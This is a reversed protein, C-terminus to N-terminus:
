MDDKLALSLQGILRSTHHRCIKRVLMVSTDNIPPIYIFIHPTEPMPKNIKSPEPEKGLDKGPYKHRSVTTQWERTVVTHPQRVSRSPILSFTKGNGTCAPSGEVTVCACRQGDGWQGADSAALDLSGAACPLSEGAGSSGAGTLRIGHGPRARLGTRLPSQCYDKWLYLTTCINELPFFIGMKGPSLFVHPSYHFTTSRPLPSTSHETWTSIRLAPTFFRSPIAVFAHLRPKDTQLSTFLDVSPPTVGPIDRLTGTHHYCAKDIM